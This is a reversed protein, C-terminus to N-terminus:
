SSRRFPVPAPSASRWASCRGIWGSRLTPPEQFTQRRDRVTTSEDQPRRARLVEECHAWPGAIYVAWTERDSKKDFQRVVAALAAKMRPGDGMGAEVLAINRLTQDFCDALPKGCSRVLGDYVRQQFERDNSRAAESAVQDFYEPWHVELMWLPDKTEGAREANLYRDKSTLYHTSLAEDIAGARYLAIVADTGVGRMAIAKSAPDNNKPRTFYGYARILDPLYPLARRAFELARERDGARLYYDSAAAYFKSKFPRYDVAEAERVYWAGLERLENRAGGRELADRKEPDSDHIHRASINPIGVINNVLHRASSADYGKALRAVAIDTRVSFMSWEKSEGLGELLSAATEPQDFHRALQGAMQFRQGTTLESPRQAYWILFERAQPKLQDLFGLDGAIQALLAADQKRRLVAREWIAPLGAHTVRFDPAWGNMGIFEVWTVMALVPIRPDKAQKALSIYVPNAFPDIEHRAAALLAMAAVLSERKAEHLAMQRRFMKLQVEAPSLTAGSDSIQRDLGRMLVASKGPVLDVLGHRLVADILERPRLGSSAAARRALCDAPDAAQVCDVYTSNARARTAAPAAACWAILLGGLIWPRM